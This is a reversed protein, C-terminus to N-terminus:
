SIGWFNIKAITVLYSLIVISVRIALPSAESRYELNLFAMIDAQDEQLPLM